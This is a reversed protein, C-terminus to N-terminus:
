STHCSSVLRLYLNEILSSLTLHFRCFLKSIQTIIDNKSKFAGFSKTSVTITIVVELYINQLWHKSKQEIHLSIM